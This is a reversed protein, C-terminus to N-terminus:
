GLRELEYVGDSFLKSGIIELEFHEGVVDIVVKGDKVEYKGRITGNVMLVNEAEFNLKFQGGSWKTGVISETTLPPGSAEAQLEKRKEEREQANREQWEGTAKEIAGVRVGYNIYGIFMEEFTQDGFIVSDRPDPNFPNAPSNDFAGVANIVTGRPLAKPEKLWYMTQWDFSYNPVSLLAETSGDQYEAAYMFRSGRYHMHPAMGYLIVDGPGVRHRATVEFDRDGPPIEFSADYASRTVLEYEPTENTLHLGMRTLDTEPKGTTVYHMQFVFTAGAPVYKATSEPFPVAEAGPVFAAFFGRAGGSVHPEFQKKEEPYEIFILCHHLVSPDGPLVEIGHVWTEERLGSPAKILQYEVIGEAPVEFPTQMAVIHDPTGLRWEGAPASKAAEPLPDDGEGRPAGAEIWAALTRKEDPTLSRDNKFEGIYPDAHWPPMRDTLLVEQIMKGWGAVKKHSSFAFPAAGGDRHCPVCKSEIIPAIDMSYDPKKGSAKWAIPPAEVDPAVAVTDGDSLVLDLASDIGRASGRYEIAWDGTSVIIAEGSHTFELARSVLQAPDQLAPVVVKASASERQETGPNLSFFVVGKSAFSDHLLSLRQTNEDANTQGAEVCAIVIASADSYRHLEHSVGASDLLRFNPATEQGAASGVSHLLAAFALLLALYQSFRASLVMDFLGRPLPLTLVDLYTFPSIWAFQKGM